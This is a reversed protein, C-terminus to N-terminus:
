QLPGCAPSLAAERTRSLAPAPIAHAPCGPLPWGCWESPSHASGRPAPNGGKCSLMGNRHAGFPEQGDVRCRRTNRHGTPCHPPLQCLRPPCTGMPTAPDPDRLASAPAEQTGSGVQTGLCLADWGPTCSGPFTLPKGSCVEEWIRGQAGQLGKGWPHLRPLPFLAWPSPGKIPRAPPETSHRATASHTHPKSSAAQRVGSLAPAGPLGAAQCM